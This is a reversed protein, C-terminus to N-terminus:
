LTALQAVTYPLLDGVTYSLLRSVLGYVSDTQVEALTLVYAHRAKRTSGMEWAMTERYGRVRVKKTTEDPLVITTGGASDAAARVIATIRARGISMPVGDLRVLGDEALIPIDYVERLPTHLQQHLSM